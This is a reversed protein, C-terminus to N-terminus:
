NENIFASCTTHAVCYEIVAPSSIAVVHRDSNLGFREFLRILPHALIFDVVQFSLFGSLLYNRHKMNREVEEGVGRVEDPANGLFSKILDSM